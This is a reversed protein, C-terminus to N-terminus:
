IFSDLFQSNRIKLTSSTSAPSPLNFTLKNQQFFIVLLFYLSNSEPSALSREVFDCMLLSGRFLSSTSDSETTQSAKNEYSVV